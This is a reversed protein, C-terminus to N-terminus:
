LFHIIYEYVHVASCLHVHRFIKNYILQNLEHQYNPPGNCLFYLITTTLTLHLIVEKIMGDVKLHILNHVGRGISIKKVLARRVMYHYRISLSSYQTWDCTFWRLQLSPKQNKKVSFYLDIHPPYYWVKTHDTFGWYDM